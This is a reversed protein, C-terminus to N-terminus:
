QIASVAALEKRFPYDEPLEFTVRSYGKQSKIAANLGYFREKMSSLTGEHYTPPFFYFVSFINLAELYNKLLEELAFNEPRLFARLEEELGKSQDKLEIKRSLDQFTPELNPWNELYIRMFNDLSSIDLRHNTLVVLRIEENLITKLACGKLTIMEEKPDQFLEVEVPAIYCNEKLADFYFSKFDGCLKIKRYSPFQWPWLGFLFYDKNGPSAKIVEIEQQNSDLLAFSSIKNGSAVSSKLFSFFENTPADYGPAMFFVLPSGKQAYDYVLSKAQSITTSLRYPIKPQSWVTHLQGDIYISSSDSLAVRLCRVPRVCAFLGQTADSPLAGKEKLDQAFSIVGDEQPPCNILSWLGCDPQPLCSVNFLHSYLLYELGARIDTLALSSKKKIAESLFETGGLCFDACKLLIAGLGRGFVENRRAKHRRGVPMSLGTSKLVDNVSSKSVHTKYKKEVLAAIARCGLHSNNKRTTLIFNTIAPKLKYIVGM